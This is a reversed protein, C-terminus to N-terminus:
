KEQPQWSGIISVNSCTKSLPEFRCQLFHVTGDPVFVREIFIFDTSPDAKTGESYNCFVLKQGDVIIGVYQRLYSDYNGSVLALEAREHELESAADRNVPATPDPALDPFLLTPDKVADHILDRLVRDAVAVDQVPPTWFGDIKVPGPISAILDAKHANAYNEPVIYGSHAGLALGVPVLPEDGWAPSFALIFAAFSILIAELRV